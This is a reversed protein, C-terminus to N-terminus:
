QGDGCAQKGLPQRRGQGGAVCGVADLSGDQQGMGRALERGRLGQSLSPLFPCRGARGSPSPEAEQM